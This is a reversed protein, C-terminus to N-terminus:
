RIGGPPSGGGRGVGGWGAGVSPMVEGCAFCLFGPSSNPQLPRSTMPTWGSTVGGEGDRAQGGWVCFVCFRTLFQAPPTPYGREGLLDGPERM